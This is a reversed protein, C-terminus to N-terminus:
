EAFAALADDRGRMFFGLLTMRGGSMEIAIHVPATIDVGSEKGKGHQTARAIYRGDGLEELEHLEVTYSHWEPLFRQMFRRVGDPGTEYIQGEPQTASFRIDDSFLAPGTSFDGKEWRAFLDRLTAEESM